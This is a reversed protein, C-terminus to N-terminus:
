IVHIFLSIGFISEPVRASASYKSRFDICPVTVCSPCTYKTETFLLWPLHTNEPLSTSSHCPNGTLYSKPDGNPTRDHFWQQPDYAPLIQPIVTKTNRMRGQVKANEKKRQQHGKQQIRIHHEDAFIM